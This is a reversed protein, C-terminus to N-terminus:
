EARTEDSDQMISEIASGFDNSAMYMNRDGSRWIEITDGIGIFRVEQEIGVLQTYRRPILIRGNADLPL